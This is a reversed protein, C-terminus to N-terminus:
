GTKVVLRSLFHSQARLEELLALVPRSLDDRHHGSVQAKARRVAEEFRDQDFPKLLYDLAHVKFARVAYQDYATVFIILPPRGTGLLESVALGDLGPM